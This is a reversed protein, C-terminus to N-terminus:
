KVYDPLDGGATISRWPVSASSGKPDLTLVYVPYPAFPTDGSLALTNQCAYVASGAVCNRTQAKTIQMNVVGPLTVDVDADYLSVRSLSSDLSYASRLTDVMVASQVNDNGVARLFARYFFGVPPRSMATLDVSLEVAGRVGGFGSGRAAFVYDRPSVTNLVDSGGFNGFSMAGSGGVGVRRWLFRATGPTAAGSTGELTVVVAHYTAPNPGTASATSDLIIRVTTLTTDDTGQYVNTRTASVEISDTVRIPDGSVPDRITDGNVDLSYRQYFQKITGFAATPVDLNLTDRGIVWFQYAGNVARLNSLSLTVSTAGVTATGAPLNVVRNGVSFDYVTPGVPDLVSAQDSECAAVLLTALLAVPAAGRIRSRMTM